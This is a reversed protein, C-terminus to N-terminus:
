NNLVTRRVITPQCRLSVANRSICQVHMLRPYKLFLSLLLFASYIWQWIAVTFTNKWIYRFSQILTLSSLWLYSLLLGYCKVLVLYSHHLFQLEIVSREIAPSLPAQVLDSPVSAFDQMYGEYLTFSLLVKNEAPQLILTRGNQKQSMSGHTSVQSSIKEINHELSNIKWYLYFYNVSRSGNGQLM